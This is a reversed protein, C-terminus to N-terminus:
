YGIKLTTMVNEVKNDFTMDPNDYTNKSLRIINYYENKNLQPNWSRLTTGIRRVMLFNNEVCMFKEYLIKDKTIVDKVRDLSGM